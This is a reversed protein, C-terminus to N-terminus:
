ARARRRRSLGVGALGLGLLALTGPEPVSTSELRVNDLLMGINDGGTAAFRLYVPTTLASLTFTRSYSTWGANWVLSQSWNMVGFEVYAVVTDTFGLSRQNGSLDYSLTYTGPGLPGVNISVLDGAQRTSGDMDVCYGGGGACTIGYEGSRVLDVTGAMVDWNSGGNWNLISGGSTVGEFDDSFIVSAGAQSAFLGSILLAGLAATRKPM